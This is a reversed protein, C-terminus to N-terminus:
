SGFVRDNFVHTRESNSSKFLNESRKGIDPIISDPLIYPGAVQSRGVASFSDPNHGVGFAISAEPAIGCLVTTFFLLSSVIEFFPFVPVLESFAHTRIHGVGVLQSLRPPAFV